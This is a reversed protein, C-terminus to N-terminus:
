SCCNPLHVSQSRAFSIMSLGSAARRIRKRLAWARKASCLAYVKSRSACSPKWANECRLTRVILPSFAILGVFSAALQVLSSQLFKRVNFPRFDGTAWLVIVPTLVLVAAIDALWWTVSMTAFNALEAHGAISLSGAGVIAGIMTGPGLGILAFKAVGDPADFAKRGGAWVMTLYGGIVAQLVNGAAIVSAMPISGPSTANAILAGLFIAPWVRLGRLLVAALALSTAPWIPPTNRHISVLDLGLKALVYYALGIVLLEAAYKALGHPDLAALTRATFPTM